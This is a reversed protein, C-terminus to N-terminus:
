DGSRCEEHLPRSSEANRWDLVRWEFRAERGKGSADLYSVVVWDEAPPAFARLPRVTLERPSVPGSTGRLEGAVGLGLLRDISVGNWHTVRIGPLFRRRADPGPLLETVIAVEAGQDNAIDVTFPLFATADALPAPLLYRTHRDRIGHFVGLLEEHFM